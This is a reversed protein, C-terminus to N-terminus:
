TIEFNVLHSVPAGSTRQNQVIRLATKHLIFILENNMPSAFSAAFLALLLSRRTFCHWTMLVESAEEAKKAATACNGKAAAAAVERLAHPHAVGGLLPIEGGDKGGRDEVEEMQFRLTAAREGPKAAGGRCWLGSEEEWRDSRFQCPNGPFDNGADSRFCLSRAREHVRACVARSM